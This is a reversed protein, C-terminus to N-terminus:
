NYKYYQQQNNLSTTSSRTNLYHHQSAVNSAYVSDYVTQQVPHHQYLTYTNQQTPPLQQPLQQHQLQSPLQSPSPQDSIVQNLPVQTNLIKTYIKPFIGINGTGQIRGKWWDMSVYEVVEVIDGKKFSLDGPDDSVFDWMAEVVSLSYAPLATEKLQQQNISKEYEAEEYKHTFIPLPQPRPPSANPANPPLPLPRTALIAGTSSVTNSSINSSPQPSPVPSVPQYVSSRSPVAPKPTSEPQPQGANVVDDDDHHSQSQPSPPADQLPPPTTNIQQPPTTPSQRHASNKQLQQNQNEEEAISIGQALSHLPQEEQQQLQQLQQQQQQLIQSSTSPPRQTISINSNRKQSIDSKVSVSPSESQPIPSSSPSPAPPTHPTAHVVPKPLREIIEELAAFSIYGQQRLFQLDRIVSAIMHLAYPEFVVSTRKSPPVSSFSTNLPPPNSSHM